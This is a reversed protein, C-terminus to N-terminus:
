DDHPRPYARRPPMSHVLVGVLIAVVSGVLIVAFLQMGHVAGSFGMIPVAGAPPHTVRLWRMLVISAGVAVSAAVLAGPFSFFAAECVITGVLYGGMINVPQALPSSPQGFILVATAGLPAFLLPQESWVALMGVLMMTAVAGFGAKLNSGRDVVTEHRTGAARLFRRLRDPLRGASM